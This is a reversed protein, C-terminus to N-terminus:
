NLGLAKREKIETLLQPIYLSSDFVQIAAEGLTNDGKQAEKIAEELEKLAAETSLAISFLHWRSTPKNRTYIGHIM